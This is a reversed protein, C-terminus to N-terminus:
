DFVNYISSRIFRASSLWDFDAARDLGKNILAARFNSDGLVLDLKDAIDNISEPNVYVAAGGCIEPLSTTNSTIVPTGCAMAELVPLGFSEALSPFCFAKSLSYLASLEEDFVPGLFLVKDELSKNKVLEVYDETKWDSSGAIVLTTEEKILSFALILNKINKRVNLRGVFLVFTDPLNYKEKVNMLLSKNQKDVVRFCPNVGHYAVVADQELIYGNDKLRVKETESVTVVLDSSRTLFKLPSFYIREKITYFEPHTLFLVDHIYAVRKYFGFFDVFNQYLFIDVKNKKAVFPVIFLNSLLNNGGWVYVTKINSGSFPFYKNKYKIDLFFILSDDVNTNVFAEVLNRIVVKGSAPGEFYWKADFGIVKSM